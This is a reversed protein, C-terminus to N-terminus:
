WKRWWRLYNYQGWRSTSDRRRKSAPGLTMITQLANNADDGDNVKFVIKGKDDQNLEVIVVRLIHWIELLPVM